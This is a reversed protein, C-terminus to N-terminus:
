QTEEKIGENEFWSVKYRVVRDPIQWSQADTHGERQLYELFDDAEKETFFTRSRFTRAVTKMSILPTGWKQRVM